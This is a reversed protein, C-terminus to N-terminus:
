QDPIPGHEPVQYVHEHQETQMKSTQQYWGHEHNTWHEMIHRVQEDHSYYQEDVAEVIFNMNCQDDDAM